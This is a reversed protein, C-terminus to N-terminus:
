LGIWHPLFHDMFDKSYARRRKTGEKAPWKYYTVTGGNLFGAWWSYSGVTTIVHDCAALIGLDEYPSNGRVFEVRLNKPMYKRPWINDNSCVIFLKRTINSFYEVSKKLYKESAVQIGVKKHSATAMDGRRIHVGILTVESRSQIRFKVLIRKISNDIKQRIHPRFVLLKRLEAFCCSFYKWSQLSIGLHYSKNPMFNTLNPDFGCALKEYKVKAGECVTNGDFISLANNEKLDFVSNVYSHRRVVLTMNKSRAVGYGSAFQFIQNGLQGIETICIYRRDDRSKNLPFEAPHSTAYLQRSFTIVIFVMICAVVLGVTFFDSLSCTKKLLFSIIM